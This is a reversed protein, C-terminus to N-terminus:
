INCSVQFVSLYIYISISTNYRCPNKPKSYLSTFIDHIDESLAQHGEEGRVRRRGVDRAVAEVHVTPDGDASSGLRAPGVRITRARHTVRIVPFQAGYHSNFDHGLCM